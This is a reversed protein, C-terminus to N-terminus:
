FPFRGWIPTFMFFIQFWWRSIYGPYPDAQIDSKEIWHGTDLGIVQPHQPLWCCLSGVIGMSDNFSYPDPVIEKCCQLQFTFFGSFHCLACFTLSLMSAAM